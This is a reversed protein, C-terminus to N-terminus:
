HVHVAVLIFKNFEEVNERSPSAARRELQGSRERNAVPYRDVADMFIEQTAYLALKM